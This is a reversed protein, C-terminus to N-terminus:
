LVRGHSIWSFSSSILLSSFCGPSLSTSMWTHLCFQSSVPPPASPISLFTKKWWVGDRDWWPASLWKKSCSKAFVSWFVLSLALQKCTRQYKMELWLQTQKELSTRQLQRLVNWMLMLPKNTIQEANWLAFVTFLAFYRSWLLVSFASGHPSLFSM